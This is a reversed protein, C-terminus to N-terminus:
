KQINKLDFWNLKNSSRCSHIILEFFVQYFKAPSVMHCDCLRGGKFSFTTIHWRANLVLIDNTIVRKTYGFGFSKGPSNNVVRFGTMNAELNSKWHERVDPRHEEEILASNTQSLRVPKNGLCHISNLGLWRM